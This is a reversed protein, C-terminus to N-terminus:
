EQRETLAVASQVEVDIVGHHTKHALDYAIRIAPLEGLRGKDNLVLLFRLTLDSARGEFLNRLTAARREVDIAKHEFLAWLGAHEALLDVIQTLEDLIEDAAGAQEALDFLSRAYMEAVVSVIPSTNMHSQPM